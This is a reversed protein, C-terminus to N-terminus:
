LQLNRVEPHNPGFAQSKIKQWKRVLDEAIRANMRPLEEGSDEDRSSGACNCVLVKLLYIKAAFLSIHFTQLQM